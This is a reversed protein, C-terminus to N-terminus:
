TTDLCIHLCFVCICSIFVNFGEHHCVGKIGASPPLPLGMETLELGAQNIYHTGLCGPIHIYFSGTEFFLVNFIFLYIFLEAVTYFLRTTSFFFNYNGILGSIETASVYEFSNLVPVSVCM